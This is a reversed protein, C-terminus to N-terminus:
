SVRFGTRWKELLVVIEYPLVFFSRCSGCVFSLRELIEAIDNSSLASGPSCNLILFIFQGSSGDLIICRKLLHVWLEHWNPHHCALEFFQIKNHTCECHTTPLGCFGARAVCSGVAEALRSSLAMLFSGM